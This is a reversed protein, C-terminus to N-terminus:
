QMADAYRPMDSRTLTSLKRSRHNQLPKFSTSIGGGGGGGGRQVMHRVRQYQRQTRYERREKEIQEGVTDFGNENLQDM